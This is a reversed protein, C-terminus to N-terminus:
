YVVENYCKECYVIEPRDPSYTTKMDVWCKDCKRDFLKRSNRLQMRELHRQDPHKRPIPLNHKRYFDLEQKIIRFPKQTTECMIAWNLIDDPIDKINEPLKEAPIIKEVNPKPPEYDSWNFWQSEAEEKTLPFYEIAVTENYWFPSISSPFFEGWEWNKQMHEIIKPVLEDYEQKTYQKNLICYQKNRLWVCWFCNSLNFSNACYNLDHSGSWCQVSFNINYDSIWCNISEYIKEADRWATSVDMCNVANRWVHEWYRCDEANHSHFCNYCNKSNEIYDWISNVSNLIRSYKKPLTKKFELFKNKIERDRLLKEVEYKWAESEYKKNFIYYKKDVLNVCWLCKKCWICDEMFFSDTCNKCNFLYSSNYCNYCNESEYCYDCEHMFGSDICYKCKQLWYGYYCYENNSSESILYCNKNDAVLNCYSSNENNDWVVNQQPVKKLLNSFQEFFSKSFDFDIGYDLPNWNDSWWFSQEYVKIEKDPSYISIINKGTADCKRKYLNRENRFSLRRQQRCDPCLTPTPIQYKKWNFIPSFKDYFELDKDTIEFNSNCHKCTKTQITKKQM